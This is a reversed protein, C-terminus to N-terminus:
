RFLHFLIRVIVSLFNSKECAPQRILFIKKRFSLEEGVKGSGDDADQVAELCFISM